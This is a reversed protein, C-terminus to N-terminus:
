AVLVIIAVLPFQGNLWHFRERRVLSSIGELRFTQRGGQTRLTCSCCNEFEFPYPNVKTELSLVCITMTIEIGGM